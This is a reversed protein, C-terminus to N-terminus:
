APLYVGGLVLAKAAGTTDVVNGPKEELRQKALWAFTAAEVFDGDM